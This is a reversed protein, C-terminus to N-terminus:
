EINKSDTGYNNFIKTMYDTFDRQWFHFSAVGDRDFDIYKRWESTFWQKANEVDQNFQQLAGDRMACVITDELDLQKLSEADGYPWQKNMYAAEDKLKLNNLGATYNDFWEKNKKM